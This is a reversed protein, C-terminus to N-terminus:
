TVMYRNKAIAYRFDREIYAPREKICTGDPQIMCNDSHVPHSLDDRKDNTDSIYQCVSAWLMSM